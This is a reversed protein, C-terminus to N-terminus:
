SLVDTWSLLIGGNFSQITMSLKLIKPEDVTWRKSSLDESNQLLGRHIQSSNQMWPTVHEREYQTTSSEDCLLLAERSFIEFDLGDPFSPPLVNSLYDVRQDFFKQIGTDLLVPDILPCDGTIRIFSDASSLSSAQVYRSLVDDIDGRVVTLGLSSALSALEDDHQSDTTALIIESINSKASGKM